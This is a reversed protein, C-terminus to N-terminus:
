TSDDHSTVDSRDAPEAAALAQLQEQLPRAAIGGLAGDAAAFPHRPHVLEAPALRAFVRDAEALLLLDLAVVPDELPLEALIEFQGAATGAVGAVRQHGQDLAPEIVDDGPEAERRAARLRALHDR